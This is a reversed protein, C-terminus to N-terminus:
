QRGPCCATDNRCMFRVPQFVTFIERCWGAQGGYVYIRGERCLLPLYVDADCAQGVLRFFQHRCGKVTVAQEGM